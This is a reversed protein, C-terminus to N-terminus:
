KKINQNARGDIHVIIKPILINLDGLIGLDVSKFIPAQRDINIAIKTVANEIGKTFEIAGSIGCTVVLKPSVIKGTQGIQREFPLIGADVIPRTGGIAAKIRDAFEEIMKFKEGSGMGRGVAVIIEAESIDITRHDAKLFGTVQIPFLEEKIEPKIETVKTVKPQNKEESLTLVNPNVTAMKTGTVKCIVTAHLRRNQVPKIFEMREQVKIEVCNTVLPVKLKAAVRSMLDSALPTAAALFLYPENKLIIETLLKEYINPVYRKLAEHEFLYLHNVGHRSVVQDIGEIREGFMVADLEGGLQASLRKGEEILGVSSNKIKKEEIELLVGVDRGM